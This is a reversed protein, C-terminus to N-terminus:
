ISIITYDLNLIIYINICISSFMQLNHLKIMFVRSDVVVNLIYATALTAVTVIGWKM